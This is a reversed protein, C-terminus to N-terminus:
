ECMWEFDSFPRGKKAIAHASRFLLSVRESQERNLSRLIKAAPTETPNQKAKEKALSQGHVTSDEHDIISELKMNNTGIIFKCKKTQDSPYKRCLSCSIIAKAEDHLLWERREGTKKNVRWSELWKRNRNTDYEKQKKNKEANQEEARKAQNPDKVGNLFRWM